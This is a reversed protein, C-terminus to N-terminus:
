EFGKDRSYKVTMFVENPDLAAQILWPVNKLTRHEGAIIQDTFEWSVKESTISQLGVVKDQQSVFCQVRAEDGNKFYVQLEAFHRWDHALILAGTEEEFERVQAAIATEGEEVSGGIGNLLGAQWDPKKKEILAVQANDPGFVFGLCFHHM